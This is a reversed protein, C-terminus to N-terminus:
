GRRQELYWKSMVEDKTWGTRLRESIIRPTVGRFALTTLEKPSFHTDRIIKGGDSTVIHRGM